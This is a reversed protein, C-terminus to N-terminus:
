SKSCEVQITCSYNGGVTSYFQYYCYSSLSYPSAPCDPLVNPFYPSLQGFDGAILPFLLFSLALHRM